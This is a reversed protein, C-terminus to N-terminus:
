KRHSMSRLSCIRAQLAVPPLFSRPPNNEDVDCNSILLSRVRMPYKAIFVQAVLGGSDNAVLDVHRVHLHDLLSALMEAQTDPTISQKEPIESFGMSMLDPAICRRVSHLRELVGRWQYEM